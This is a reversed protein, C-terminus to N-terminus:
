KIIDLEKKYARELKSAIQKFTNNHYDNLSILTNGHKNKKEYDDNILMAWIPSYPQEGPDCGELQGNYSKQKEKPIVVKCLVGLCCYGREDQLTGITQSYKGSRLATLWKLFQKKDTKTKLLREQEKM